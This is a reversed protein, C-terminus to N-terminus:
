PASQGRACRSACRAQHRVRRPLHRACTAAPPGSISTTMRAHIMVKLADSMQIQFLTRAMQYGELALRQELAEGINKGVGAYQAAGLVEVRAQEMANYADIADKGIPLRRAHVAADHHKLRLAMADAAGRLRVVNERTLKQPPMPLRVEDGSTGLKQNAAIPTFVVTTEPRGAIAKVTATTASKFAEIKSPGKDPYSQGPTNSRATM